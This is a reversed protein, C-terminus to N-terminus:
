HVLFAQRRDVPVIEAGVGELFALVLGANDKGTRGAPVILTEALTAASIKPAAADHLLRVFDLREPERRAIAVIASPYIVM